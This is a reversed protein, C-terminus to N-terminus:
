AVEKRAPAAAPKVPKRAIRAVLEGKRNEVLDEGCDRCTIEEFHRVYDYDENWDEFTESRVNLHECNERAIIALAEEMCEDCGMYDFEPVRTLREGTTGCNECKLVAVSASADEFDRGEDWDIYDNIEM